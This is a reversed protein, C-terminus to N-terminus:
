SIPPARLSPLRFHKPSLIRRYSVPLAFTKHLQAATFLAVALILTQVLFQTIPCQQQTDADHHDHIHHHLFEGGITFTLFGLLAFLAISLVCKNQLFRKM